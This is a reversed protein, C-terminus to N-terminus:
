EGQMPGEVGVVTTGCFFDITETTGEDHLGSIGWAPRPAMLHLSLPSAGNVKVGGARVGRAFSMAAVEDDGFVYAELGYETGNALRLAEDLDRYTHVTGVPGFIEEGTSEPAVGSILTPALYNGADPTDTWRHAVGGLRVLGDIRAKLMELHDSHVIPGMMSDASLPDGIAVSSLAEGIARLIEDERDAPVILRGLARCWQGNLTTMLATVAAAAVDADCDPLIVVPSHGGLELQVPKLGVACASAIDRGGVVGGTFSVARIRDDKVLVGGQRPGGHVLQVVGPALGVSQAAEAIVATGHPAREPPKIVVPCGAALASAVKHAAMPAPANWPVLTLAPGWGKKIIEVDNGTPGELTASLMGSRTMDAALQFAAHTIFSLMGTTGITAGSTASELLASWEARPQIAAAMAELSDAREDHTSNSWDGHVSEHHATAIAREIAEPSSAKQAQIPEGTNRDEIWADLDLAPESWEGAVYDRPEPLVFSDAM